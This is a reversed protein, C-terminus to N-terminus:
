LLFAKNLVEDLNMVKANESIRSNLSCVAMKYDSDISYKRFFYEGEGNEDVVKINGDEEYIAFSRFLVSIGKGVAKVYSEKLTWIEFFCDQRKHEPLSMIFEYEKQSFFRKALKIDVNKVKQIDIGSPLADICVAVWQGSHATNFHIGPLNGIFPKGWENKCFELNRNEIGLRECILVRALVDGVLSRAADPRKKLSLIRRRKEDSVLALLRSFEDDELERDLKAAFVEVISM